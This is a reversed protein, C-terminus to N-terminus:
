ANWELGDLACTDLKMSSSYGAEIGVCGQDKDGDPLMISEKGKLGTFVEWM